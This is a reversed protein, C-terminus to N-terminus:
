NVKGVKTHCGKCLTIMNEEKNNTDDGDIHHVSLIENFKMLCEKQTVGCEQCTYNDKKRRQEKLKYIAKTYKGCCRGHIYNANNEGIQKSMIKSVKERQLCGCSNIGKGLNNGRVIVENGCNCKCLWLIAGSWDWGAFEVVILRGYRIGTRDKLAAM